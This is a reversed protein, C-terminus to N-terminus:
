DVGCQLLGLLRLRTHKPVRTLPHSVQDMIRLTVALHERPLALGLREAWEVLCVASAFTEALRLRELEQATSLRYLDFHHIPLGACGACGGQCAM